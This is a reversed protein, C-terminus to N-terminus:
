HGARVEVKSHALVAREHIREDLMPVQGGAIRNRFLMERFEVFDALSRETSHLQRRPLDIAAAHKRLSSQM